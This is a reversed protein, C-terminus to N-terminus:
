ELNYLGMQQLAFLASDCAGHVMSKNKNSLAEGAFYVKNALPEQLLRTLQKQNGEFSYSYAGQIYPEASWNQVIHQLYNQSAAGDFIADLLALLKNVIAQEDQLQTYETAKENIAFLGLVHHKSDKGFSADYLYLEEESAAKFINGLTMIDPYFRESFEIFVKIGDGMYVSKLARWKENSLPPDFSLEGKQLVKIPVTVLVKDALVVEGNALLVRAQIGSYDILTVASNLRIHAEMPKAMHQEFFDFWTSNQFKWESYFTRLYNHKKLRGKHWSAISQPNYEIIKAPIVGAPDQLIEPLIKPETHIWEAGLDIPFDVFGQAKKIRGGYVPAAELIEFAIGSKKLLYGATLGAAGAGVIIVKGSFDQHQPLQILTGLQSNKQGSSLLPIGLALWMLRELAERRNITGM